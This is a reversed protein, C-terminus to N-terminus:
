QAVKAKLERIEIEQAAIIALLGQVRKRREIQGKIRYMLRDIDEELEEREWDREIGDDGDTLPQGYKATGKATQADIADVLMDRITM